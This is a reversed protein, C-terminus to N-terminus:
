WYDKQEDEQVRRCQCLPENDSQRLKRWGITTAVMLLMRMQLAVSLSIKSTHIDFCQVLHSTAASYAVELSLLCHVRSIFSFVYGSISLNSILILVIFLLLSPLRLSLSFLPLSLSLSPPFSYLSLSLSLSPFPLSLSLSLPLSLSLSQSSGM